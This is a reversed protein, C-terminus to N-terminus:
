VDKTKRQRLLQEFVGLCLVAIITSVIESTEAFIQSIKGVQDYDAV